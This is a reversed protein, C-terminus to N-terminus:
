DRRRLTRAVLLGGATAALILGFLMLGGTLLAERLVGRLGAEGGLGAGLGGVSRSVEGLNRQLDGLDARLSVMESSTLALGVQAQAEWGAATPIRALLWLMQQATIRTQELQRAADNVPSFMSDDVAYAAETMDGPDTREKLDVMRFLAASLLDPHKALYADVAADIRALRDAAIWERAVEDIRRGIPEQTEDCIDPVLGPQTRVRHRCVNRALRSWVYMDVLDRGPDDGLAISRMNGVVENRVLALRAVQEPPVGATTAYKLFTTQMRSAGLDAIDLLQASLELRDRARADVRQTPSACGAAAALCTWATMSVITARVMRRGFTRSM